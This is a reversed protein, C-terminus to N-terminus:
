EKLLDPNQYINGIVESVTGASELHATWGNVVFGNHKWAIEHVMDYADEENRFRVLDGEYIENGNKDRLGTFQMLVVHEDNQWEIDQDDPPPMVEYGGSFSHDFKIGEVIWMNRLEKDWARFKIERSM